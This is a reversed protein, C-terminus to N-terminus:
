PTHSVIPWIPACTPRSFCWAQSKHPTGGLQKDSRTHNYSTRYTYGQCRRWVYGDSRQGLKRCWQGSVLPHWRDAGDPRPLKRGAPAQRTNASREALRAARELGEGERSLHCQLLGALPSPASRQAVVFNVCRRPTGWGWSMWKVSPSRFLIFATWQRLHASWCGYGCVRGRSRPGM